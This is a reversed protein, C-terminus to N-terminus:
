GLAGKRVRVTVPGTGPGPRIGEEHAVIAASVAAVLDAPLAATWAQDKRHEAMIYELCAAIAAVTEEEIGRRLPVPEGRVRREPLKRPNLLLDSVRIAVALLILGVFVVGMGLAAIYLGEMLDHM